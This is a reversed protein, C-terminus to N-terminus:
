SWAPLLPASRLSSSGNQLAPSSFPIKRTRIIYVVFTQTALSEIFWGTHFIIQNFHFINYLLVFTLIDFISSIPGFILMFIRIFRMDWQKPKKLYEADVNDSPITTQSLDYLFNNVLIQGAAHSLFPHLYLRLDHFVYQRFQFEIGDDPIEHYQRFDQPGELVGEM